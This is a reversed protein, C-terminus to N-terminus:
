EKEKDINYQAIFANKLDLYGLPSLYVERVRPKKMYSFTADYLPIIPLDQLLLDQARELLETRHLSDNAQAAQNLLEIYHPNEWGTRNTGNNKYKFVELYNAADHIDAFWSGRALTYEGKRIKDLALKLECNPLQVDVGLVQKWQRQMAQSVKLDRDGAFYCLSLQPLSDQTINLETLGEKFLKLAKRPNYSVEENSHKLGYLPPILVNAPQQGAQTINDVIAKRDIAMSFAHRIKANTFPSAQTNLRLFFIGDAPVTEICNKEKLAILVDLPITSLPSGTWDLEDQNFLQIATNNDAIIWRITKLKVAEADWYKLNKEFVIEEQHHWQKLLFPGNCPVNTPDMANEEFDKAWQSNVPFYFPASLLQLFEPTPNELEVVLTQANRAFVGLADIFENGDKIAKANKLPYLQYANPAPFDQALMTKWATIFDEAEVRAGNSWYAERLHFTYIKGDPSIEISKALAPKIEGNPEVRILGEYLMRLMNMTAISRGRRPDVTEPDTEGSIRLLGQEHPKMFSSPCSSQQCSLALFLILVATCYRLVKKM